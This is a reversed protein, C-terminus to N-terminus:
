VLSTWINQAGSLSEGELRLKDKYGKEESAPPKEEPQITVQKKAPKEKQLENKVLSSAFIESEAGVRKSWNITHKRGVLTTVYQESYRGNSTWQKFIPSSNLWKIKLLRSAQLSFFTERKLLCSSADSEHIRSECAYTFIVTWSIVIFTNELLARKIVSDIIFVLVRTWDFSVCIKFDRERIFAKFLQGIHLM